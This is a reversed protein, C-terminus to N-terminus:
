LRVFHYREVMENGFYEMELLAKEVSYEHFICQKVSHLMKEMGKLFEIQYREELSTPMLLNDLYETEMQFLLTTVDTKLQHYALPYKEELIEKGVEKENDQLKKVLSKLLTQKETM